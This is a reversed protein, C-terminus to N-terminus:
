TYYDKKFVIRQSKIWGGFIFVKFRSREHEPKLQITM